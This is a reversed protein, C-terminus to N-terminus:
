FPRLRSTMFCERLLPGLDGIVVQDTHIDESAVGLELEWALLRRDVEQAALRAERLNTQSDPECLVVDRSSWESRARVEIVRDVTGFPSVDLVYHTDDGYTWIEGGSSAEEGTPLYGETALRDLVETSVQTQSGLMGVYDGDTSPACGVASVIGVAAIIGAFWM